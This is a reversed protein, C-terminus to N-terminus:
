FEFTTGAVGTDDIKTNLRSGSLTETAAYGHDKNASVEFVSLVLAEDAAPPKGVSPSNAASQALLPVALLLLAGVGCPLFPSCPSPM